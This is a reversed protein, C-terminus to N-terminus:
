GQLAKLRNPFISIFAGILVTSIIIIIGQEKQNQRSEAFHSGCYAGRAHSDQHIKPARYLNVIMMMMMMMMMMGDDDDDAIMSHKPDDITNM